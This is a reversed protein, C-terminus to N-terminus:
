RHELHHTLRICADVNKKEKWIRVSRIQKQELRRKLLLQRFFSRVHFVHEHLVPSREKLDMNDDITRYM